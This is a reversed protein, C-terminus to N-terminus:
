QHSYHRTHHLLGQEPETHIQQALMWLVHGIAGVSQLDDAAILEALASVYFVMVCM